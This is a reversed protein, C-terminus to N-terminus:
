NELVSFFSILSNGVKDEENVMLFSYTDEWM